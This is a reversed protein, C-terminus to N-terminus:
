ARMWSSPCSMRPRRPTTSRRGTRRARRTPRSPSTAASRWSWRSRTYGDSPRGHHRTIFGGRFRGNTVHNFGSPEITDEVAATLAPDRTRGGDTGINFRPLEGDFLRPISSRISHAAYVMVRPHVARVWAVEAALAAHYPAFWRDRRSAVEEPPRGEGDRYLPEGDFPVTPCLEATALGPCLSAGCPHRNVDVVTRSLRTRLITAGLAAAFDALREVHWDTDKRALWPSVLCDALDAPIDTGTHPLSLLLPADDRRCERWGPLADSM